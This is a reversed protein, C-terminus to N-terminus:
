LLRAAHLAELTDIDRLVGDDPVPVECVDDPHEAFLPRGGVDGRLGRLADFHRASWLVPNGRRGGIVPVCIGRGDAPSFAEMLARVDGVSVWPMDGLLVMAGEAGPGVAGIGAGVSTSLGQAHTPNEVLRVPLGDLARRVRGADHGLVVVVPDLGALLATEAVRRVMSLGQVDALLKNTRGARSSSGAALVVGAVRSAERTDRTPEASPSTM